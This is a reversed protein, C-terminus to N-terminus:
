LDKQTKLCIKCINSNHKMKRKYWKYSYVLISYVFPQADAMAMKYIAIMMEFM